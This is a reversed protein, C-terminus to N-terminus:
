KIFIVIKRGLGLAICESFIGMKELARRSGGSCQRHGCAWLCESAKETREQWEESGPTPGHSASPEVDMERFLWASPAAPLVCLLLLLLLVCVSKHVGNGEYWSGPQKRRRRNRLSIETGSETVSPAAGGEWRGRGLSSHPHGGPVRAQIKEATSGSGQSRLSLGPGRSDARCGAM